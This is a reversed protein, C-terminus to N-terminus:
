YEREDALVDSAGFATAAASPTGAWIRDRTVWGERGVHAQAILQDLREAYDKPYQRLGNAVMLCTAGHRHTLISAATGKAGEVVHVGLQVAMNVVASPQVVRQGQAISGGTMPRSDKAAGTVPRAQLAIVVGVVILVLVAVTLSARSRVGMPSSMDGDRHTSM